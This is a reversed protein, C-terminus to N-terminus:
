RHDARWVQHRPAWDGHGTTRTLLCTDALFEVLTQEAFGPPADDLGREALFARDVARRVDADGRPEARGTLYFADENQPSPFSHLACRPDRRLDALKPSPILLGFLGEEVVVPCMPHLRPGGDRRVTGLFALGVGFQYLLARGAEALEPQAARFENWSM